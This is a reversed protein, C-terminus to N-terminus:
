GGAIRDQREGEDNCDIIQCDFPTVWYFFWWMWSGPRMYNKRMFYRFYRASKTGYERKHISLEKKFAARCDGRTVWGGIAM